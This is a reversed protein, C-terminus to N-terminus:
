GGHRKKPRPVFRWRRGRQPDGRLKATQAAAPEPAWRRPIPRICKTASHSRLGSAVVPLAPNSGARGPRGARGWRWWARLGFGSRSGQPSSPTSGGESGCPLHQTGHETAANTGAPRSPLGSCRASTTLRCEHRRESARCSAKWRSLSTRRV